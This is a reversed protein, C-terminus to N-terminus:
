GHLAALVNAPTLPATRVRVGTADFVANAVAAATPRSSPEGAGAPPRDPRDLLVVDVREPLDTTRLVPYTVWDTSTVTRADFAVQEYLTRSLSQMLNAEITGRLSRPNVILGCDHACTMRTVRVRGDRRDVTVEAVTAVVTDGRTAFAVGRGRLIPGSRRAGAAPRTQWDAAEAVAHLVAAHRPDRLNRLRFALADAGAAAALEDIFSEVIFTTGPGEPDRLHTTRLPSASPALPAVLEATARLAGVAYAPSNKGYVAYETRPKDNAHGTLQGGLFNGASDPHSSIEGGNFARITVDLAAIGGDRVAGRARAVMAPAKPGWQTMDHRMWQIRVPRGVARSVLAADAAADDFGARGYSGADEVFVVRVRESP